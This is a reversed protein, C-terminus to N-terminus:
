VLSHKGFPCFTDITIDIGHLNKKNSQIKFIGGEGDERLLDSTVESKKGQFLVPLLNNVAEPKQVTLM